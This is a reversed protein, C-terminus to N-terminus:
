FLDDASRHTIFSDATYNTFYIPSSSDPDKVITKYDNSIAIKFKIAYNYEYVVCKQLREIHKLKNFSFYGRLGYNGFRRDSYSRHNYDIAKQFNIYTECYQSRNFAEAYFNPSLTLADKLRKVENVSDDGYNYNVWLNGYSDKILIIVYHRGLPRSSTGTNIDTSSDVYCWVQAKACMISSLLLLLALIKKM